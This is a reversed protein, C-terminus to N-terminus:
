FLDVAHQVDFLNQLVTEPTTGIKRALERQQPAALFPFMYILQGDIVNRKPPRPMKHSPVFTRYGRPNLGARHPLHNIMENQLTYFRKFIHEDLPALVGLSGDLSGCFLGHRNSKAAGISNLKLRVFKNVFEGLHFDAVCILRQGGKSEVHGTSFNFIQINKNDDSVVLGLSTEDILFETAYVHSQEFDQSLLNLSKSGQQDRYRLFYIGKFVDGFLIFNKVTNLSVAFFQGHFFAAGQLTNRTYQYIFIKPGLSLVLYGELHAVATVPGKEEKEFVLNLKYTSGEGSDVEQIQFLLIRGKCTQDEGTTIATAVALLPKIDGTDHKLNVQRVAMVHEHQQFMYNSLVEMSGPRLIRLEFKSETPPIPCPEEVTAPKESTASGTSRADEDREDAHGGLAAVNGNTLRQSERDEKAVALAYVKIAPTNYYTIKQASCRIPLKRISWSMSLNAGAISSMQAIRIPGNALHYMFGHPCNAINFPSFCLLPATKNGVENAFPHCVIAGHESLILQPHPGCVMIGSRNAINNFRHLHSYQITNASVPVEPETKAAKGKSSFFETVVRSFRYPFPRQNAQSPRLLSSAPPLAFSQYVLIEDTSLYLVLVPSTSTPELSGFFVDVISCQRGSAQGPVFVGNVTVDTICRSMLQYAASDHETGESKIEIDSPKPCNFLVAPSQVVNPCFFLTSCEPVTVIEMSGDLRCVTAVTIKEDGPLSDKSVQFDADETYVSLSTVRGNMDELPFSDTKLDPNAATASATILKVRGNSLLLLIYPHRISAAVITILDTSSAKDNASLNDVLIWDFLKDGGRLLRIGEPYIQVIVSGNYLNGATVTPSKTVFQCSETIDDISESNQFAMTSHEFGILMYAHEPGTGVSASGNLGDSGNTDTAGTANNYVAFISKCEGLEFESILEPRITRQLVCLSGNKGHGSCTVIELPKKAGTVQDTVSEGVALDAIPGINFISDCVKLKYKVPVVKQASDYLQEDELEDRETNEAYLFDDEANVSDLKRRKTSGTNKEEVIAEETYRILLSDGVRSGLLFHRDDMSTVSLSIVSSGARTFNITQIGRGDYVLRCIYLDGNHLSLLLTEPGLFTHKANDLTIPLHLSIMPQYSRSAEIGESGFENVALSFHGTENFHLIRNATILVVGGIPSPMPIISQIDHPLHDWFWIVPHSRSSLNVSIVTISCSNQTIALRGTWTPKKEHLILLTPEFYGHLFQMDLVNEIGLDGKLDFLFPSDTISTDGLTINQLVQNLNHVEQKRSLGAMAKSDVTGDTLMDADM